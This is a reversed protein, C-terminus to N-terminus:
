LAETEPEITVNVFTVNTAAPSPTIILDREPLVALSFRGFADPTEADASLARVPVNISM